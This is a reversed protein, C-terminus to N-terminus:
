EALILGAAHEGIMLCTLAAPARVAIPVVSADVVRLNAVGRVRCHADVVAGADVGMRAGGVLNLRSYSRARLQDGLKEDDDISNEDVLAFRDVTSAFASQNVIEWTHRYASRLRDLDGDASFFGLDVLPETAPNPDALTIRGRSRPALDGLMIANVIPAGIMKAMPGTSMGSFLNLYFGQDDPHGPMGRLRAILQTRPWDATRAGEPPVGFMIAGPQDILDAGVGPLDVVSDIGLARLDAAPGIGSRLLLAPSYPAGASLIVEGADVPEGDIVVGIARTGDFRVRAVPADARLTFNPRTRAAALHTLTTSMRLRDRRNQPYMGIGVAGPANMDEQFEHGAAETAALFGAMSPLLDDRSWRTIPVPGDAGHYDRDGFQADTELRCFSELVPEFSWEPLGPRAWDAFDERPPRLAGRDNVQSSGGVVRGRAVAADRGPVLTARLNWFYGDDESVSGVSLPEPMASADPLDPGAEVLLM